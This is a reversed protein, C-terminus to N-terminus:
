FAILGLSYIITQLYWNAWTWLILCSFGVILALQEDAVKKEKLFQTHAASM